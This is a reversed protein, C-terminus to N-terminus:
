KVIKKGGVIYLGKQLNLTQSKLNSTEVRRGQLDYVAGNFRLDEVKLRLDEVGTTTGGFDISLSPATATAATLYARNANVQQPASDVVKYFAVVGSHNQLVYAGTPVSTLQYAGVLAGSRPQSVSADTTASVAFTYSGPEANVLVPTNAELTTTVETATAKDAGDAYTLTWAQVGEPITATYPLVLTAAKAASVTLTYPKQYVVKVAETTGGLSGYENVAQVRYTGSQTLAFENEATIGVVNDNADLVLYCIAYESATWSLQSGDANAALGTPAAAPEMYQRPNWGDTSGDKLKTGYTNYVDYQVPIMKEYTYEAADAATMEPNYDVDYSNGGFSFSTKRNSMDVAEGDTGITNYEAFIAPLAGMDTWGEPRIGVKCTTNLYVTKPRNHWPRGLSLQTEDSVGDMVCDVMAFGHKSQLLHNPAVIVSGKRCNYFTSNEIFAEAAGYLYDVAGEIWCNVAYHRYNVTTATLWTDQYSRFACNNFAMRDGESKMALAQPGAQFEVGFTNYYTINETYFDDSKVNVVAGTSSMGSGEYGYKEAGIWSPNKPNYPWSQDAARRADADDYTQWNNSEDRYKGPDDVSVIGYKIITKEKSQGILHIYLKNQPITVLEEYEGNKVFILYPETCNEPAKDIAEQVTKYDGTGDKAVVLDYTKAASATRKMTTFTIVVDSELTKGAADKLYGAPVTMTYETGYSLGSYPLAVTRGLHRLEPVLTEGNLKIDGEGTLTMPKSLRLLIEGQASAYYSGNAPSTSVIAPVTADANPDEEAYVAVDALYFGESSDTASPNILASTADGIWRLYLNQANDLSAPLTADMDHWKNKDSETFTKSAITTWTADNDAGDTAYQLLQTSHVLLNDFGVKSHVKLTKYGKASLKAVFSRPKSMDAKDTYRRIADHVEYNMSKNQSGGWATTTNDGKYINMLGKNNSKYYLDAAYSSRDIHANEFTWAVIFPTWDFTATISMDGTVTVKRSATTSADDWATFTAVSNSVATATVETGEVFKGDMPEPSLVVKGWKGGDGDTNVTLTYSTPAVWSTTPWRPDGIAGGTTSATGLEGTADISFDGTAPNTFPMAGTYTLNDITISAKNGYMVQYDYVLNKRISVTGVAPDYRLMYNKDNTFTGNVSWIINDNMTVTVGSNSYKSGLNLLAYRYNTVKSVKYLTNNSFTATFAVDTTADAQPDFFSEGAYNYITSNTVSISGVVNNPRIFSWGDNGCDRVICGDITISGLTASKSGGTILCRSFQTGSATPSIECDKFALTQINGVSGNLNCFYANNPQIKIGEFTVGGAAGADSGLTSNYIVEAGTAARLTINATAPIKIQATYTGAAMVFVDGDTASAIKTTYDSTTVEIDAASATLAVLLLFLFSKLRNM